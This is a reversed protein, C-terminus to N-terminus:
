PYILYIDIKKQFEELILKSNKYNPPGFMGLKQKKSFGLGEKPYIGTWNKTVKGDSNEDHHVKIALEKIDSPIDFSFSEKNQTVKKIQNYISESHVKPYGLEGFIYVVINGGKKIDINDVTINLQAGNLNIMSMLMSWMILKKKMM